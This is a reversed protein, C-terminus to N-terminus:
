EPFFFVFIVLSFMYMYSMSHEGPFYFNSSLAKPPLEHTLDPMLPTEMTPPHPLSSLRAQLPVTHPSLYPFRLRADVYAVVTGM